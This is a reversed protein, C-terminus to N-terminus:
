RKAELTILQFSTWCDAGSVSVAITSVVLTSIRTSIEDRSGAQVRQTVSTKKMIGYLILSFSHSSLVLTPDNAQM